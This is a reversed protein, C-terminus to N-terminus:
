RTDAHEYFDIHQQAISGQQTLAFIVMNIGIKLQPENEYEREWYKGYAKNAYIAVLREDLYVGKLFAEPQSYFAGSTFGHTTGGSQVLIIQNVEEGPPPGGDFDFFSHYVPHSNPLNEFRAQKGLVQKFMKRLSAEAPGYDLAPEGNDALIFGGRGLYRRLNDIEQPTLVFAEDSTIYVFPTEMMEKSDIFLHNDVRANIQTYRNIAEVLQPIARPANPELDTGWALGLHVFGTINRKDAPDQIVLAKYQGTDLADLDLFEEQRSIRKDPEKLSTVSVSALRPMVVATGIGDSNEVTYSFTSVTGFVDPSHIRASTTRVQKPKAASVKRTMVRLPVRKKKFEFPKTMRPTRVMFEIVPPQAVKAEKQTLELSGIITLHAIISGILGYYVYKRTRRHIDRLDLRDSPSSFRGHVMDTHQTM